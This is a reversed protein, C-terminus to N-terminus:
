EIDRLDPAIWERRAQESAIVDFSYYDALIQRHQQFRAVASHAFESRGMAEQQRRLQALLAIWFVTVTEHYGSTATNKGGVAENYAKVRTRMRDTAAAQGLTHVYCAGTLLHAGHSWQERPLSGDEFAALFADIEEEEVPLM